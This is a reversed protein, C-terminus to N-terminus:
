ITLRRETDIPVPKRALKLVGLPVLGLGLLIWSGPEPTASSQLGSLVTEVAPANYLVGVFRQVSTDTPSFVVTDALFTTTILGRAYAAQALDILPQASPDPADAGLSGTLEWIAFSVPGDLRSVVDAHQTNAASWLSYAALFAVEKEVATVPLASIGPYSSGFTSALQLDMCFFSVANSDTLSGPYPGVAEGRYFQNPDSGFQFTVSGASATPVALTMAMLIQFIKNM